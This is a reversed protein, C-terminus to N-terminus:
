WLFNLQGTDGDLEVPAGIPLTLNDRGHGIPLGKWIPINLGNFNERFLEWDPDAIKGESLQGLLLGSIRDLVGALRLHVLLRDLRYPEEGQDEVFLIAGKWSPELPTGILHTLLTLNGGLLVGTARGGSIKGAPPLLITEPLGGLLISRLQERFVPGTRALTTVVPGHFTLLGAKGWFATLLVTIDSFGIFLKPNKKIVRYDLRELLRMAGYGGRACIVAKIGPDLFMEALEAAREPDSGALFRKKRIRSRGPRTKFGWGELVQVGKEFLGQDYLSAPAPIGITHGPELFPPIILKRSTPIM